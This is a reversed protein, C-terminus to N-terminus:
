LNQTGPLDVWHSCLTKYVGAPRRLTLVHNLSCRAGSKAAHDCRKCLVQANVDDINDSSTRLLFLQLLKPLVQPQEQRPQKYLTTACCHSRQGARVKSM